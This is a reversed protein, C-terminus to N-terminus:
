IASSRLLGRTPIGGRNLCIGDLREREVIAVTM